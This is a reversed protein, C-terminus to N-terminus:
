QRALRIKPATMPVSSRIPNIDLGGRRTYRAYVSLMKPACARWIDTFIREVCQEHFENHLRFSVLYQLLAQRDIKAGTYAIQVSGWDPQGTVLCNSKLLDSYLVEHVQEESETRLLNISNEYTQIAVNQQDLCVGDFKTLPRKEFYEDLSFLQVSVVRGAAESLDKSITAAVSPCDNFVTQNFSNLYLKISKSEILYPSDAPITWEAIAVEPKGSPSLWSVEYATWLDEGYFPWAGTIGLEQRKELRPIAFLLGAEYQDQYSSIKGLPSDKLHDTM